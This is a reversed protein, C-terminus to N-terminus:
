RDLERLGVTIRSTQVAAHAVNDRLAVASVSQQEVAVAIAVQQENVGDIAAAMSRMTAAVQDGTQRVATVTASIEGAAAGTQAALEKVEAAVVAFGRGATGARAAEITANLALLNTQESIKTIVELMRGITRSSDALREVTVEAALAHAAAQDTVSSAATVRAAIEGISQSLQAVAAAASTMTEDISAAEDQLEILQREQRVSRVADDTAGRTPTGPGGDGGAARDHDAGSGPAARLRRLLSRAWVTTLAWGSALAVLLAIPFTM